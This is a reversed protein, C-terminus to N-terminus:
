YKRDCKTVAFKLKKRSDISVDNKRSVKEPNQTAQEKIRKTETAYIEALDRALM